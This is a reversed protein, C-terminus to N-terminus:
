PRSRWGRKPASISISAAARGAPSEALIADIGVGHVGHRYILREASDLLATTIPQKPM